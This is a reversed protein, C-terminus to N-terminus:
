RRSVAKGRMALIEARQREAKEIYFAAFALNMQTFAWDLPVWARTNEKLAERFAAAAEELRATGGEQEGLAGLATGLNNQTTAWDLPARAREKRCPRAFPPSPRRSNQRAARGSASCQSRM